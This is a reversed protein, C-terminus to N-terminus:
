ANENGGFKGEWFAPRITKNWWDNIEDYTVLGIRQAYMVAGFCYTCHEIMDRRCTSVRKAMGLEYNVWNKLKEFETTM